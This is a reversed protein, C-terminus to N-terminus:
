KLTVLTMGDGGQDANATAFSDVAPSRRLAEHVERRLAGTGKGHIIEVQTAGTLIAQDLYAELAAAAEDARQGRLDLSFSQARPQATVTVPAPKPKPASAPRVDRAGVWMAVGGMDVKLRTRRLDIEAVVATKGFGPLRVRDGPRLSGLAPPTGEPAQDRAGTLESAARILEARTQALEKLAQKRGIKDQAQRTLIDQAQRKLEALLEDKQRGFAEILKQTKDKLAARQRGLELVAQEKEVALANLRDFIRASGEGDLLLYKSARELIEEPLGHERAVDFANSAGVQDYVIAYLPKKSAPDFLMSAARVGPTSLAYAKLGPFHTASAFHAGRALLGDVVAQALAAGQAPDTGAGFEDLLVLTNPGTGPWIRALGRIQATFTSLHGELSQEDGMFVFIDNWFPLSGGSDAPVPLGALTMAALLGLTKLCVTKGGANAGSIILGTQGDGLELRLPRATGDLALLPHRANNLYLALGPEARLVVGDYLGALAAKAALLDLATLFDYVARLGTQSERALGTLHALIRGEAQREENKLERLSNNLEVLFLPEFYCTEGTQSYDHIVGKFRGKFNTKLPLVYRDSSITIFEDQMYDAMGEKQLFDKAHRLCKQHISRMEQRISFLEPSADDRIAGDGGLCRALARECDGPWPLESALASLLPALAAPDAQGPKGTQGAQGTALRSRLNKAAQLTRHLAFLADLDLPARSASLYAFLGDLSPF